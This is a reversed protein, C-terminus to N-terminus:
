KRVTDEYKNEDKNYHSFYNSLVDLKIRTTKIGDNTCILKWFERQNSSKLSRLKRNFNNEYKRVM